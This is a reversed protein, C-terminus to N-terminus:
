VVELNRVDILKYDEYEVCPRPIRLDNRMERFGNNNALVGVKEARFCSTIVEETVKAEEQNNFRVLFKLFLHREAVQQRLFNLSVNGLGEESIIHVLELTHLAHICNNLFSLCFMNFSSKVDYITLERLGFPLRMFVQTWDQPHLVDFAVSELGPNNELLTNVFLQTERGWPQSTETGQLSFVRLNNFPLYKLAVPKYRSSFLHLERVSAIGAVENRNILTNFIALPCVLKEVSHPLWQFNSNRPPIGLPMIHVAKISQFYHLSELLHIDPVVLSVDRVRTMQEFQETVEKRSILDLAEFKLSGLFSLLGTKKFLLLDEDTRTGEVHLIVPHTYGKLGRAVTPFVDRLRPDGTPVRSISLELLSPMYEPHVLELSSMKHRKNRILSIVDMQCDTIYRMYNLPMSFFENIPDSQFNQPRGSTTQGSLRLCGTLLDVKRWLTPALKDYIISSSHALRLVNSYDTEKDNISTVSLIDAILQLIEVPLLELNM